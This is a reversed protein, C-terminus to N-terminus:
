PPVTDGQEHQQYAVEMQISGVCFTLLLTPLTLTVASQGSESCHSHEGHTNRSTCNSMFSEARLITYTLGSATVAGEAGAAWQQLAMPETPLGLVVTSIFVFHTLGAEKMAALSEKGAVDLLGFARKAGSNQVAQKISATDKFDVVVLQVGAPLKAKAKATDRVTAVVPVGQKHLLHVLSSAINGTAGFVLVPAASSM